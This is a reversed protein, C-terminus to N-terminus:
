RVTRGEWDHRAAELAAPTGIDRFYAEGLEVVAARGVLRPLLEFGIDRPTAGDIEDLVAPDLAYMGANALDGRPDVPKEVFAVM